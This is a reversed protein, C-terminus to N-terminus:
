GQKTPPGVCVGFYPTSVCVFDPSGLKALHPSSASTVAIGIAALLCTAAVAVLVLFTRM